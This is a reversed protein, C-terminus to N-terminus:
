GAAIDFSVEVTRDDLACVSGQFAVEETSSTMTPKRLGLAQSPRGGGDTWTPDPKTHWFDSM